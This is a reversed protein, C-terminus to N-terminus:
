TQQGEFRSLDEGEYAPLDIPLDRIEIRGYPGEADVRWPHEPYDILAVGAAFGGELLAAVDALIAEESAGDADGPDRAATASAIGSVPVPSPPAPESTSRDAVAEADDQAVKSVEGRAVEGWRRPHPSTPSTARESAGSETDGSRAGFLQPSTDAAHISAIWYRATGARGSWAGGDRALDCVEGRAKLSELASDAWEHRGGIAQRVTSTSHQGPHENLWALVRGALEEEAEESARADALRLELADADWYAPTRKFGKINNGRAEVYLKTGDADIYIGARAAAGKFVDGYARLRSRNTDTKWPMHDVLVVTAGTTDCIEAKLRAFLAGVERDKLDLEATFNYLSDLVVLVFGFHEITARLRRLDNPLAVGENLFWRIALEAPTEHVRAFLQVREAENRTSDDQWFYGVAGSAVVQRGFLEGEGAAVIASLKACIWGKYTEPLGTVTVVVGCEILDDILFRPQDEFRLELVRSHQLGKFLDPEAARTGHRDVAVDHDDLRHDDGRGDRRRGDDRREDHDRHPATVVRGM